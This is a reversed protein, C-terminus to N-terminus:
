VHARGIQTVDFGFWLGGVIWDGRERWVPYDRKLRQWDVRERNPTMRAKAEAWETRSKVYYDLYEPTSTAHKFNKMTAGWSTTVVIYDDTDELVKSDFRPSIDAHIGAVHDLGFYDVWGVGEPMGERQWREITDGWPSDLLPVRDAEMHQYMRRFRERTDM